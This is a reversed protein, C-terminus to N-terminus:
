KRPLPHKLDVGGRPVSGTLWATLLAIRLPDPWATRALARSDWHPSEADSGWARPGCAFHPCPGRPCPGTVRSGGEVRDLGAIQGGLGSSPPFGSGGRGHGGAAEGSDQPQRQRQADPRRSLAAIVVRGRLNGYPLGFPIRGEVCSGGEWCEDCCVRELEALVIPELFIALLAVRELDWLATLPAAELGKIRKKGRGQSHKAPTPPFDRFNATTERSPSGPQGSAHPPAKLGLGLQFKPDNRKEARQVRGPELRLSNVLSLGRSKKGQVEEGKSAASDTYSAAEVKHIPICSYQTIPLQSALTLIPYRDCTTLSNYVCNGVDRGGLVCFQVSQKSRNCQMANATWHIFIGSNPKLFYDNM